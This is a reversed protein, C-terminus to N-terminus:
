IGPHWEPPLKIGRTITVWNYEDLYKALSKGWNKMFEAQPSQYGYQQEYLKKLNDSLHKSININQSLIKKAEKQMDKLFSLYMDGGFKNKKLSNKLLHDNIIEKDWQVFLDPCFLGLIKATGTLGIHKVNDIKNFIEIINNDIEENIDELKLKQLRKLNKLLDPSLAKKLGNSARKPTRTRWENLFAIIIDCISKANKEWINISNKYVGKERLKILTDIYGNKNNDGGIYYYIYIAWELEQSSVM